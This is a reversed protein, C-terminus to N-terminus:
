TGVVGSRLLGRATYDAFVWATWGSADGSRAWLRGGTSIPAVVTPSLVTQWQVEAPLPGGPYGQVWQLKTAPVGATITVDVKWLGFKDGGPPDFTPATLVAMSALREIFRESTTQRGSKDEATVVVRHVGVGAFTLTASWADSDTPGVPMWPVIEWRDGNALEAHVRYGTLDGDYDAIEVSLAISGDGATTGVSESPAIWTIRPAVDASAPYRFTRELLSESTGSATVAGLRLTGVLDLRLLEAMDPHTWLTLNKAPLIWAQCNSGPTWDRSRWGLRGRLVEYVHTDADVAPTRTVVSMVEVEPRGDTIVIRGFTPSVNAIVILLEDTVAGLESQPALDTLYVDRATSADVLYLTVEPDDASVADVLEVRAAFGVGRGLEAPVEDTLFGDGDTDWVFFADYGVVDAQPRSALVAVGLGGQPPGMPILLASVIPDVVSEEPDTPEGTPTYPVATTLTDCVLRLVTQGPQGVKGPRDIREEVVALQAMGSGGPEPDVDVLVKSGPALGIVREPRCMVEVTVAPQQARRVWETAWLRGQWTRTVHPLDLTQSSQEGGRMRQSVLNAATVNAAKYKRDRDVLRAVVQTAIDGWSGARIRPSAVLLPAELLALGGPNVGPQLLRVALKGDGTWALAGDFMALLSACVSRLDRADTLFPSCYYRTPNGRCHVAAANWSAADLREVALGAGYPATLLEALVAVPNVQGDDLTNDVAPVLSTDAVPKRTVVVEINPATSKERGFLFRHAVLYAFDRYAPHDTLAADAPQDATGWYVRLYGERGAPGQSFWKPELRTSFDDYTSNLDTPPSVGVPRADNGEWVAKGDVIIARVADIPGLCILGALTGFYNYSVSAGGAKNGM